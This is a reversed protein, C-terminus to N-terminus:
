CRPHIAFEKFGQSHVFLAYGGPNLDLSLIGKDDTEMKPAPNPAPVVRIHAHPIPAGSPDKVSIAVPSTAAQQATLLASVLMGAVLLAVAIRKEPMAIRCTLENFLTAYYEEASRFRGVGLFIRSM